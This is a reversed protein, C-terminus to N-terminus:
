LDFPDVAEMPAFAVRITKRGAREFTIEATEQANRGRVVEVRGLGFKEHRVIAGPALRGDAPVAAGVQAHDWGPFDDIPAAGAGGGRLFPDDHRIVGGGGPPLDEMAVHAAPLEALFRSRITRERFGRQARSRAHTVLLHRRARTMGVFCLRREEELDDDEGSEVARAHPMLGEELGVLAVADFELGKAAHVTMLTIAGREPDIADSDAVLAIQELFVALLDGVPRPVDDPRVDTQFDGSTVDHDAQADDGASRPPEATALLADLADMPEPPAPPAEPVVSPAPIARGQEDVPGPDADMPPLFEAAANVLEGLNELRDIDEEGASARLADELGSERVIMEVLDALEHGGPLVALRAAARWREIMEAFARISKIARAGLGPVAAPENIADGFRLGMASAHAAVRDLSTKGIGRAPQNIIRRMAVEDGPNITFRLYALADRIEKRDYFATGRAIVYPLRAARMADEVVRSLANTRYMVAMSRFPIDHEDHLHRFHGVVRESEAHEDPLEVVQPREGDGLETFLRKDKRATNNRILADSAAVIHGTSRFNRGLPIVTADAYTAEFELINRIDAGRWAYISQDPDGVVMINRSRAALQRAITLQALNTDQYEDIMLYRYRDQLETRVGANSQLMLAVRMLLDDFDVAGSARMITEYGKYARAISRSYFDHADDREFTAATQLKNKANSIWSAVSAPTFNREALQADSIARKIAAKQDSTDYITFRPDVGAEESYRRLLRACLAHFTSVTLGRPALDAGVRQQIRERMEGAAKNTFTVALIQWPPIGQQLMWAIRRTVVTTKGSGPGALVLVPGDVHVVADRQADTLGELMRAPDPLMRPM